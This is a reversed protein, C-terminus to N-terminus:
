LRGRQKAAYEDHARAISTPAQDGPETGNPASPKIIYRTLRTCRPCAYLKITPREYPDILLPVRKGRKHGKAWCIPRLLIRWNM